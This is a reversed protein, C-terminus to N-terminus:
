DAVETVLVVYLLGVITWGVGFTIGLLSHVPQWPLLAIVAVPFILVSAGTRFQHARILGICTLVLSLGLLPLGVFTIVGGIMGIDNNSWSEYNGWPVSWYEIVFGISVLILLTVVAGSTVSFFSGMLPKFRTRLNFMGLALLLCPIFMFKMYDERSLGLLLNKYDNSGWGHTNVYAIMLLTWLAGGVILAIGGQKFSPIKM